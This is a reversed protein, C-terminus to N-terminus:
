RMALRDSSVRAMQIFPEPYVGIVLTGILALIIGASLFLPLQMKGTTGTRAFFMVRAVNFYYYVSVVSCVIGVVALWTLGSNIAAGFVMAKGWFGATPPLGALSALFVVLAVAALPSSAILGKYDEIEDSNIANSVATVVTFAGLNMFLYTLLYLVIGTMRWDDTATSTAAVAMLIYGIQGIGSYALMRKINTQPIAALNGLLMSMAALSAIITTWNMRLGPFAGELIRLLVAVGVAKPGVSILAVAPTPGGEFAEPAWMHFPAAALKFGLGALILVLALIVTSDGAASEIVKGMTTLGTSGTYGYALSMGYLMVASSTVGVLYYKMGAEATRPQRKLYGILVYSCISTYEMAVYISILDNAGAMLSMGLASFVLLAYYEGVGSTVRQKVYDPSALVALITALIAIMKFILALEDVRLTAGLWPPLAASGNGLGVANLVIVCSALATALGVLSTWVLVIKRDRPTVLDLVLLLLGLGCLIVEPALPGIVSTFQSEM